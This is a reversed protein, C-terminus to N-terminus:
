QNVSRDVLEWYEDGSSGNETESEGEAEAEAESELRYRLLM